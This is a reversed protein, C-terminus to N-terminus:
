CQSISAPNLMVTLVDAVINRVLGSVPAYCGAKHVLIRSPM